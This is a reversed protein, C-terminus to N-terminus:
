SVPSVLRVVRTNALRDHLAQGGLLAPVLGAGLCIASLLSGAARVTALAPSLTTGEPGIVKLAFAMKGITQGGAVTFAVLYGGNLLVLFAALPVLPLALVESLSLSCVRLTLYIVIFDIGGLIATDVLAALAREGPAAPLLSDTQRTRYRAPPADAPLPLDLTRNRTIDATEDGPRPRARAPEAGRRVPISRPPAPSPPVRRERALDGTGGDFLPLDPAESVGILRDLDIEKGAATRRVEGTLPAATLALDALPGGTDSARRMEVEAHATTDRVALAFEYGCNRCRDPTNFGIYGCKPCKV